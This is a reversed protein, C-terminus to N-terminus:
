SWSLFIFTFMKIKFQVKRQNYAFLMNFIQLTKYVYFLNSTSCFQPLSSSKHHQMQLLLNPQGNNVSIATSWLTLSALTTSSAPQIVLRRLSSPRACNASLRPRVRIQSILDLFSGYQNGYRTTTSMKRKECRWTETIFCVHLVLHRLWVQYQEMFPWQRTAGYSARWEM